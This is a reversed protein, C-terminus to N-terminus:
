PSFESACRFGTSSTAFEPDKPDRFTTRVYFSAHAFWDGGRVVRYKGESPGSPDTQIELSYDGYWDNVWEGIGGSM